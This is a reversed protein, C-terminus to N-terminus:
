LRHLARFEATFDSRMTRMEEGLDSRLARIEGGLDRLSHDIRQLTHEIAAM